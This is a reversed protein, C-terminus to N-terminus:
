AHQLHIRSVVACSLEHAWNSLCPHELNQLLRQSMIKMFDAWIVEYFSWHVSCADLFKNFRVGPDLNPSNKM